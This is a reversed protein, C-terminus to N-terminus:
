LKKEMAAIAAAVGHHLTEGPERYTFSIGNPLALTIISRRWANGVRDRRCLVSTTVYWMGCECPGSARATTGEIDFAPTSIYMGFDFNM